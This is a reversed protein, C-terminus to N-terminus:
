TGDQKVSYQWHPRLVIHNSKNGLLLPNGFLQLDYFQNLQKLEGKHWLDWISMTQLKKRTFYGLAQEELTTAKSQIAHILHEIMESTIDAECFPDSTNGTPFSKPFRLRTIAQLTHVDLTPSAVEM